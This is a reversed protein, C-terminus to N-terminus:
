STAARVGVRRARRSRRRMAFILLMGAGLAAGIGPFRWNGRNPSETPTARLVPDNASGPRVGPRAPQESLQAATSCSSADCSNQQPVAGHHASAASALAGSTLAVGILATVLRSSLTTHTM